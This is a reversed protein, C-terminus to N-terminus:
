GISFSGGQCFAVFDRLSEADDLTALEEAEKKIEEPTMEVGTEKRFADAVHRALEVALDVEKQARDPAALARELAAGLAGADEKTVIQGDSSDYEGGWPRGRLDPPPLTGRPVWGYAKALNLYLMWATGGFRIEAGSESTLDLGM